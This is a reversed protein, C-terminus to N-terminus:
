PGPPERSPDDEPGAPAAIDADPDLDDLANPPLEEELSAALAAEDELSDQAFALRDDPGVLGDILELSTPPRGHAALFAAGFGAARDGSPDILESFDATATIGAERAWASIRTADRDRMKYGTKDHVANTVSAPSVEPGAQRRVIDDRVLDVTEEIRAILLDAGNLQEALARQLGKVLGYRSDTTAEDAVYAEDHTLQGFAHQLFTKVQIEFPVTYGTAGLRVTVSGDVHLARYGGSRPHENIDEVTCDAMNGLPYVEADGVAAQELARRVASVDNLSLVLVRVGLLDHVPFRDRKTKTDHRCRELLAQPRRLDHRMAKAHLRRTEKIRLNEVLEHKFEWTTGWEQLFVRTLQEIERIAALFLDSHEELWAGIDEESLSAM